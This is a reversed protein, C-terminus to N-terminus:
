FDKRHGQPHVFNHVGVLNTYSECMDCLHCLNCLLISSEEFVKNFVKQRKAIDIHVMNGHM